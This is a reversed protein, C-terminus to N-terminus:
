LEIGFKLLYKKVNNQRTVPNVAKFHKILMGDYHYGGFRGNLWRVCSDKRIIVTTLKLTSYESIRIQFKSNNIKTNITKDEM